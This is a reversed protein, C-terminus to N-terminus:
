LYDKFKKIFSRFCFIYDAMVQTTAPFEKVYFFSSFSLAAASHSASSAVNWGLERETLAESKMTLLFCVTHQPWPEQQLIFAPNLHSRVLLLSWSGVVLREEKGHFLLQQPVWACSHLASDGWRFGFGINRFSSTSSLSTPFHPEPVLM